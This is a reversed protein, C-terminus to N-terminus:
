IRSLAARSSGFAVVFDGTALRRHLGNFVVIADKRLWKFIGGRVGFRSAQTKCKAYRVACSATAKNPWPGFSQRSQRGLERM